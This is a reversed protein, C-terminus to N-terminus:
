EVTPPAICRRRARDGAIILTVAVIGAAIGWLVFAFVDRLGLVLAQRQIMGVLTSAAQAQAQVPPVGRGELIVVLRALQGTFLANNTGVQTALDAYHVTANTGVAHTLPTAVIYTAVLRILALVAIARGALAPPLSLTALIIGPAATLGAGLGLGAAILLITSDGTTATLGALTWVAVGLCALGGLLVLPLARRGFTAAFLVSAVVCLAFAPWLLAGTDRAGLGRVRLLFLSLPGVSGTFTAGGVVAFVAGMLPVPRALLRVPTLAERQLAEVALFLLLALVGLALPLDVEAAGWDKWGLEGVGYFALGVGLVALAFAPLDRRLRPNPAPRAPLVNRALLAALLGFAASVAFLLRWAGAQEVVGSIPPGATAAGFLCLSVVVATSRLRRPPFGAVLPPLAVVLLAGSAFGQGMRGLVLLPLTPAGAGVLSGAVFLGLVMLNLRRLEVRQGLDAAFLAGLALAANGWLTVWSVDTPSAGLDAAITPAVLGLATSNILGPFTALVVFLVTPWYAPGRRAVAM